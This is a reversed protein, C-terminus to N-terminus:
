FLNYNGNRVGYDKLTKEDDKMDAIPKGQSDLLKLAISSAEAGVILELKTQFYSFFDIFIALLVKFEKVKMLSPYRKEFPYECVNTTIEVSVAESM